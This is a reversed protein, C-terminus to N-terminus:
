TGKTKVISTIKTSFQIQCLWFNKNTMQATKKNSFSLRVPTPRTFFNFFRGFVFFLCSGIWVLNKCFLTREKRKTKTCLEKNKNKKTFFICRIGTTFSQVRESVLKIKIFCLVRSFFYAKNKRIIYDELFKKRKFFFFTRSPNM